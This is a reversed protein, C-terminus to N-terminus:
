SLGGAWLGALLSIGLVVVVAGALLEIGAVLVAGAAGHGGALRLALSKAFVALAACFGTTLATGLAMAFTAAIGAAFLGQSLAFVLVVLAGACPRIGAAVVVGAVERWRTLAEIEEPPPLHVHDCGRARTDARPDRALAALGLLTGAKRWTILAGVLAVAAFSALEVGVTVRSMTAATAHLLIALASVLLVAVIAQLLAAALSLGFGKLLARESAVLYAGIVAKGHGPGAAHFVGYAFGVALLSRLAGGDDKLATVSGQLLRYFNGQLALVYAGLGTAAPAAERLGGSFPNRAPPPASPVLLWAVFGMVASVLLIAALALGLRLWARDPKRSSLSLPATTVSM